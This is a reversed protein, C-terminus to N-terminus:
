SKLMEDLKGNKLMKVIGMWPESGDNCGGVFKGKVWCNPVSGAGTMERLVSRQASSAEVVHITKGAAKLDRIASTCYPCSNSVYLVINHSNTEDIISQKSAM